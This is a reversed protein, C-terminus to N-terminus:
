TSDGADALKALVQSLAAWQQQPGVLLEGLLLKMRCQGAALDETARIEVEPRGSRSRLAQLAAADVFDHVSVEVALVAEEALAAWQSRLAQEVMDTYRGPETFIRELCSRALIPALREVSQLAGSLSDQANAIGASLTELAQEHLDEAEAKGAIRGEARGEARAAELAAPLSAAEGLAEELQARLHQNEAHLETLELEMPSPERPAVYARGESLARVKGVSVGSKIVVGTM